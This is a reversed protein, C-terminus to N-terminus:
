PKPEIPSLGQLDEPSVEVWGKYANNDTTGSSYLAQAAKLQQTHCEEKTIRLRAGGSMVDAYFQMYFDNPSDGAVLMPKKSPHIWEKIASVKGAYWTAPAHLHHTMRSKMRKSSFYYGQGKHGSMREQASTFVTGDVGSLLMNVGIIREPPLELGYKPDCCLMRVLDEASASVVWVDINNNQLEQILQAQAPFIRPINILHERQEIKGNILKMSTAQIPAQLRMMEDLMSQLEELSFGSLAQVAWLYSTSHSLESLRSYYSYGSELPLPPLPLLQPSLSALDILGKSDMWSILAEEVDHHWITNDADFVAFAGTAESAASITQNLLSRQQSPWLNM